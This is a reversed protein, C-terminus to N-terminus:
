DGPFKHHRKGSQEKESEQRRMQAYIKQQQFIIRNGKVPRSMKHCSERDYLDKLYYQHRGDQDM